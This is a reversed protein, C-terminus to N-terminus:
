DRHYPGGARLDAIRYLQELLVVLALEHQLTLPSLSLVLDARQRLAESHGDAAGILFCATKVEGQQELTTILRAFQRTGQCEGREDLAIRFCGESRSLLDRSVAEPLGAKVFEVEHRGHRSLRKQYDEIASRAWPLSPRGAALIRIRM